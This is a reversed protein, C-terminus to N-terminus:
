GPNRKLTIIKNGETPLGAFGLDQTLLTSTDLDKKILVKIWDLDQTQQTIFESM